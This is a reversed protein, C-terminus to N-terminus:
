PLFTENSAFGRKYKLHKLSLLFPGQSRSWLDAFGPIKYFERGPSDASFMKEGIEAGIEASISVDGGAHESIESEVNLKYNM